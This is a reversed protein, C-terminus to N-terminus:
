GTSLEILKTVTRWNRVTMPTPRLCRDIQVPLSARGVGNPLHLYLERGVVTVREPDCELAALCRKAEAGPPAPLFGVHVSQPDVEPFPNRELVAAMEKATRLMVAPSFGFDAAIARELAARLKDAPLPSRLVVNGSQIYTVVDQCGAAACTDRLAAMAIKTRGGVNVGRLLAVYVTSV